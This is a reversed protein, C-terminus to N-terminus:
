TSPSQSLNQSMRSQLIGSLGSISDTLSKGWQVSMGWFLWKYLDGLKGSFTNTFVDDNNLNAGDVHTQTRFLRICENLVVKDIDTFLAKAAKSFFDGGVEQEMINEVGADKLKSFYMDFVPGLSPGIMKIVDILLDNSEIPTLMYMEFKKGDIEKIEISQQSM